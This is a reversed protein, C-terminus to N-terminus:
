VAITRAVLFAFTIDTGCVISESRAPVISLCRSSLYWSIAPVSESPATLYFGIQSMPVGLQDIYYTPAWAGIISSGGGNSITMGAAQATFMAIAPKVLVIRPDYSLAKRRKLEHKMKPEAQPGSMRDGVVAPSGTPIQARAVRRQVHAIHLLANLQALAHSSFETCLDNLLTQRDSYCRRPNSSHPVDRVQSFMAQPSEHAVLQWLFTVALITSGYAYPVARWGWRGAVLPTIWGAVMTAWTSGLTMILIAWARSADNPAGAPADSSVDSSFCSHCTPLSKCAGKTQYHAPLFPGNMAGALAIITCVALHGGRAALPLAACLVGLGYGTATLMRKAGIVQALAGGPIMTLMDSVCISHALATPHHPLVVLAVNPTCGPTFSSLMMARQSETFGFDRVLYPVVYPQVCTEGPRNTDTPCM